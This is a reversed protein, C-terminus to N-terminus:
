KYKIGWGILPICNNHKHITKFLPTLSMMKFTNKKNNYKLIVHTNQNRKKAVTGTPLM